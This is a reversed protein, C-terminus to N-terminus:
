ALKRMHSLQKTLTPAEELQPHLAKLPMCDSVMGIEDLIAVAVSRKKNKLFNDAERFAKLTKTHDATLM